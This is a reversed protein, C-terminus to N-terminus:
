RTQADCWCTKYLFTTQKMYCSAYNSGGEQWHFGDGIVGDPEIAYTCKNWPDPNVHQEKSLTVAKTTGKSVRVGSKRDHDGALVYGHCTDTPNVTANVWFVVDGKGTIDQCDRNEITLTWDGRTEPLDASAISGCIVFLAVAALTRRM